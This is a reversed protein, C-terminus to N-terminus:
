HKGVKEVRYCLRGAPTEIEIVDGVGRGVVTRGIPSVDSVKGETMDAERPSVITFKLEEGSSMDILVVRNGTCVRRTVKAKEDIVTAIKLIEELEKSRGELHGLRERAADLPANERFDKDEAAKRIEEIISPRQSKLESLETKMSEYGARTLSIVEVAKQRINKKIRTKGKKIKIHATLSKKIWGKKRAYVLFVKALKLKKQYEAASPSMRQAYKAVEDAIISDFLREKGFWRVFQYIAQQSTKAEEPPLSGLFRNAAKSLNLEGNDDTM